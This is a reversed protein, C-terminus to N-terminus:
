AKADHGDGPVERRRVQRDPLRGHGAEGPPLTLLNVLATGRAQRTTDPIEYGRLRYVRGKNTFFLVHDHTKTVFFNRVVDERKLNSIGIVGRGGRNQTRFTDVSVRKIYGGVTYTVVVDINPSSSSWRFRTKPRSRDDTRREDGFRKKLELTETKVIGRSRPAPQALIDQLEAITKILEAYEDEIKKRELGVLTRLRM